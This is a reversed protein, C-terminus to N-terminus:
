ENVSLAFNRLVKHMKNKEEYLEKKLNKWQAVSPAYVAPTYGSIKRLPNPIKEWVNEIKALTGFKLRSPPDPGGRVGGEKAVGKISLFDEFYINMFTM